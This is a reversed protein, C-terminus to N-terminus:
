IYKNLTYINNLDRTRQKIIIAAVFVGLYKYEADSHERAVYDRGIVLYREKVQSLKKSTPAQSSGSCGDDKRSENACCIAV